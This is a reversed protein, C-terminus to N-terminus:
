LAVGRFAATLQVPVMLPVDVVVVHATFPTSAAVGGPAVVKAVPNLLSVAAGTDTLSVAQLEMAHVEPTCATVTLNGAGPAVPVGEGVGVTFGEAVGVGGGPFGGATTGIVQM